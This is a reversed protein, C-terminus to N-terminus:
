LTSARSRSSSRDGAVRGPEDALGEVHAEM